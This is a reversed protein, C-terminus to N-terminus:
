LCVGQDIKKDRILIEDWENWIFRIRPIPDSGLVECM